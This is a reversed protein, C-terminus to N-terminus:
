KIILSYFEDHSLEKTSLIQSFVEKLGDLVLQVSENFDSEHNHKSFCISLYGNIDYCDGVYPIRLNLFDWYFSNTHHGGFPSKLWGKGRERPMLIEIREYVGTFYLLCGKNLQEILESKILNKEKM